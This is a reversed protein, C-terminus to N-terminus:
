ASVWEHGLEPLDVTKNAMDHTCDSLYEIRGDRVFSHCVNGRSDRSLMSPSFTPRERDGNFEWGATAYGRVYFVHAGGTNAESCAPCEVLHGILAGTHDTVDCVKAM